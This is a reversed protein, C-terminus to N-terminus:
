GPLHDRPVYQQQISVCTAEIKFQHAEKAGAAPDDPVMRGNITYTSDVKTAWMEDPVDSFGRVPGIRIGASKVVLRPGDALVVRILKRGGEGPVGAYKNFAPADIVLMGDLQRTCTTAGGITHSEGDFIVTTPPYTQDGTCGVITLPLVFGVAFLRRM